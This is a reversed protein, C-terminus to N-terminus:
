CKKQLENLSPVRFRSDQLPGSLIKWTENHRLGQGALATTLAMVSPTTQTMSRLLKLALIPHSQHSQFCSPGLKNIEHVKICLYWWIVSSLVTNWIWPGHVHMFCWSCCQFTNLRSLLILYGHTKIVSCRFGTAKDLCQAVHCSMKIFTESLLSFSYAHEEVGPDLQAPTFAIHRLVKGTLGMFTENTPPNRHWAEPQLKIFHWGCIQNTVPLWLQKRTEQQFIRVGLQHSM